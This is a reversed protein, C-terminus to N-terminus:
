LINFKRPQKGRQLRHARKKREDTQPQEEISNVMELLTADTPSDWGYHDMEAEMAAAMLQEDSVVDDNWGICLIICM